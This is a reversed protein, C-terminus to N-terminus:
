ESPYKESVITTTTTTITIIILIIMIIILGLIIIMIIIIISNNNYNNWLLKELLCRNTFTVDNSGHLYGSNSVAVQIKESLM